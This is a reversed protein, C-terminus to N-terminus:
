EWPTNELYVRLHTANKFRKRILTHKLGCCISKIIYPQSAYKKSGGIIEHLIACLLYIDEQISGGQGHGVHFVDILKLEYRFGARQVIINDTHLDGHFERHCHIEEVAKVIAYFIHLAQYFSMGNPYYSNVYVDLPDGEVFESLLYTIDTGKFQLSEKTVYKILSSCQRLKHLKKAYNNVTKNKPNRHPYFFKAGREIGTDLEKVLYVEGEWGNGLKNIVRYKSSLVKNDEFDFLTIGKM